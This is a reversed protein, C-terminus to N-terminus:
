MLFHRGEIVWQKSCKMMNGNNHIYLQQGATIISTNWYLAKETDNLIVMEVVITEGGHQWKESQLMEANVSLVDREKQLSKM